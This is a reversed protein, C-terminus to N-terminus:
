YSTKTGVKDTSPNRNGRVSWNDQKTSDPNTAHYGRVYTGDRRTYGSTYHEGAYSRYSYARPSSSRYARSTHSHLSYHGPRRGRASAHTM